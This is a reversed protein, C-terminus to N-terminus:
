KPCNIFIVSTHLVCEIKISKSKIKVNIHQTVNQAIKECVRKTVRSMAQGHGALAICPRTLRQNCLSSKEPRLFVKKETLKKQFFDEVGWFLKKHSKFTTSEKVAKPFEKVEKPFEKPFTSAKV